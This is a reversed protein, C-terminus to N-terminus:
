LDTFEYKYNVKSLLEFFTKQVSKPRGGYTNGKIKRYVNKNTEEERSESPFNSCYRVINNFSSWLKQDVCIHMNQMCITTFIEFTFYYNCM